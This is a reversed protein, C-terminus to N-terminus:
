ISIFPHPHSLVVRSNSWKVLVLELILDSSRIRVYLATHHYHYFFCEESVAFTILNYVMWNMLPFHECFYSSSITFSEWVNYRWFCPFCNQFGYPFCYWYKDRWHGSNLVVESLYTLNLLRHMIQRIFLGFCLFLFFGVFRFLYVYWKVSKRSTLPNCLMGLPLM